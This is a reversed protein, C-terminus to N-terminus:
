EQPERSISKWRINHAIGRLTQRVDRRNESRDLCLTRLRRQLEKSERRCRKPPPNGIADHATVARVSREEKQIAEILTWIDPHQFGVIFRFRNNWAECQNNTRPENNITAEHVNWLQPPYQAPKRRIRIGAGRRSRIRRFTGEVYNVAFYELLPEAGDPQIERLYALGEELDDTPLFALGDLMGCFTKFEESGKYLQTLGLEQIKRWTAQTLHYFCGKVELTPGFTEKLANIVAKEFDVLVLTPDPFLDMAECKTLIAQFLEEYADQTKNQLLAYAVSVTVNGVTARIVYLQLFGRPAMAYNGDMYWINAEAMIRLDANSAFVIIRSDADQGNDYILFSAPDDGITNVYDGDIVIDAVTEPVAPREKRRTRQILRRLNADHGIALQADDGLRGRKNAIM